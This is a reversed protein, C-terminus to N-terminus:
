SQQSTEVLEATVGAVSAASPVSGESSPSGVELLSECQTKLHTIEAPPKDWLEFPIGLDVKVGKARCFVERKLDVRM